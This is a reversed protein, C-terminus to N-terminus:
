NAPSFDIITWRNGANKLTVKMVRHSAKVDGRVTTRTTLDCTLSATDGNIVPSGNAVLTMAFSATSQSMPDLYEKPIEPWIARVDRPRKKEFATNFQDLTSLIAKAQVQQQATQKAPEAALRKADERQRELQDILAQADAKHIDPNQGLFARLAQIDKKDVGNWALEGLRSQADRVHPGRPFRSVYARLSQPDNPNTQMWVLSEVRAQAEAAHPGTPFRDLYAQVQAPDSATRALEWEQEAPDATAAPPQVVTPLNKSVPPQVVTPVNVPTVDTPTPAGKTELKAIQPILTFVRTQSQNAGIRVRQEVPTQYGPKEVRVTHSAAELPSSFRGQADTRGLPNNDVFVMADPTKAQVILTGTARGPPPPVVIPDLPLNFSYLRRDTGVTLTREATQYGDLQTLVSYNGPPLDFKCNPTQCSRDGVRVAAGAPDTRIEVQMLPSSAPAPRHVYIWVATGLIAFAGLGATLPIPNAWLPKPSRQLGVEIESLLTSFQPDAGFRAEAEAQRTRAKRFKGRAVLDEISAIAAQREAKTIAQQCEKAATQIEPRGRLPEPLSQLDKLARQPDRERTKVASQVAEAVRRELAQRQQSSVRERLRILEDDDPAAKLRALAADFENRECLREVEQLMDVRQKRTLAAQAENLATGIDERDPHDRRLSELLRVAEGPNQTLTNKARGLGERIDRERREAAWAAQRTGVDTRLRLLEEDGPETALLAALARTAEEYQDHALFARIRDISERRLREQERKEQERAKQDEVARAAAREMRQIEPQERIEDPAAAFLATVGAPDSDLMTTARALLEKAAKAREARQQIELQVAALLETIEPHDRLRPPAAQLLAAADEARGRAMLDKAQQVLQRREATRRATEQEQLIAERLEEIAANAGHAALFDDLPRLADAFRGQSRLVTASSIAKEAASKRAQQEQIARVAAQELSQIEPQQRIEAPAAAFLATVGAPDNDLMTAARALLDKAAKAREAQQRIELRAAALLETVEPHDKLHPPAAQLLAAADDARGRAMLDKAQQVLQHREATRRAAEQEKLIAERLDRIAADAGHAALFDDLPQLADAFRGQSRLATAASIAREAAAIRAEQEAVARLAARELSQIEPQQRIYDPAASFLATAGAPDRSLMATGQALLEKAAKKQKAQQLQNRAEDVQADAGYRTQFADLVQLAEDFSEKQRLRVAAALAQDLATKREAQDRVQLQAVGLLQTVEPHGKLHSPPAKLLATADEVRGEAMLNRARHVFEHLEAARKASEQETLIAKRLNAIAVDDGHAALFDDLPLLAEPFRGQSRLQNAAATAKEAEARRTAERQEAAISRRQSQLDPDGPYRALAADLLKVAHEFERRGAAAKADEITKRIFDRRTQTELELRVFGLMKEADASEPYKAALKELAARAGTLDGDQVQQRAASLGSALLREREEKALGARRKEALVAAEFSGPFEQDIKAILKAAEDWSRIDILRQARALNEALGARRREEALFAEAEGLVRTAVPETPVLALAQRAFGAAGVADGAKHAKDAEAALRSAERSREVGARAEELLPVVEPVDALRIASEFREVADAPRGAALAEQGKKILADVKPRVSQRRLEIQIGERLKRAGDDGPTLELIQRVLEQATDFRQASKATQAEDLLEQARKKRLEGLSPEIDFLVDDLNQYRAEPDKNLLKAIVAQLEKPCDPALEGIPVPEVSLINYMLAGADAAHFPHVGSLFEYFILGYAFIDSRADTQANRFQEPAMYRFTGIMAGRPTLRSETAQTILAIGFDMIKVSGDPLVMVNAPKVDRHIVGHAHAHQLGAAIQTMIRVKNLQSVPTAGAIVQQLDRGELLEMVIYPVGDQEGFDYITVINPHRLRGSATAENRFRTLMGSDGDSALTKIAVPRGVTPDLGRYVQGFGGRGLESLIEYRGILRPM